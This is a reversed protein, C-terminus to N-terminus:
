FDYNSRFCDKIQALKKNKRIYVKQSNHESNLEDGIFKNNEKRIRRTNKDLVIYTYGDRAKHPSIQESPFFRAKEPPSFVAGTQMDHFCVDLINKEILKILEKGPKDYPMDYFNVKVGLPVDERKWLFSKKPMLLLGCIDNLLIIANM